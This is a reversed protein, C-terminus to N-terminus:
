HTKSKVNDIHKCKRRFGYAPCTCSWTGNNYKRVQYEGKGTSSMVKYTEYELKDVQKVKPGPTTHIARLMELTVSEDVEHWRGGIIAYRRSFQVITPPIPHVVKKPLTEATLIM